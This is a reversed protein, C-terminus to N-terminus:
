AIRRFLSIKNNFYGHLEKTTKFDQHWCDGNHEIEVFYGGHMDCHGFDAYPTDVLTTLTHFKKSLAKFTKTTM